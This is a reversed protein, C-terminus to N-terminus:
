VGWVDAVKTSQGTAASAYMAEVVALARVVDDGGAVPDRDEGIAGLLDDLIVAGVTGYGTSPGLVYNSSQSVLPDTVTGSATLMWSGDPTIRLAGDTGRLAIYGDGGPRPLAYALHVTGMAGSEYTISSSVVDEVDLRHPGVTGIAARVEVISEGSLWLLADLEHIGLWHLVGGGTQERDFILNAPDRVAVSSTVFVAETSLLRGLRGSQVLSKADQWGRGYRRSLAVAAKVGFDKAVQFARAVDDATKGGPKDALVHVGARAVKEIGQPAVSNPLTVLVIDPAHVEILRDLDSEFTIDLFWEPFAQPLAPDSHDPGPRGAREPDPDYVAVIEIQDALARLSEVWGTVHYHNLGLVAARKRTM